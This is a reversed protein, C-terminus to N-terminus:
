GGFRLRAKGSTNCSRVAVFRNDRLAALIEKQKDWHTEGLRIEVFWVHNNRIQNGFDHNLQPDSHSDTKQTQPLTQPTKPNQTNKPAHIAFPTQPDAIPDWRM